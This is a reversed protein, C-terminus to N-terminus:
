DRSPKASSKLAEIRWRSFEVLRPTLREIEKDFADIKAVMTQFETISWREIPLAFTGKAKVTVFMVGDADEADDPHFSTHALM